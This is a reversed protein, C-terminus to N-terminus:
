ATMPVSQSECEELLARYDDATLKFEGFLKLRLAFVREATKSLKRELKRAANWDSNALPIPRGWMDCGNEQAERTAFPCYMNCLGSFSDAFPCDCCVTKYSRTAKVYPKGDSGMRYLQPNGNRIAYATIFERDGCEDLKCARTGLILGDQTDSYVLVSGAFEVYLVDAKAHNIWAQKFQRKCQELTMKAM